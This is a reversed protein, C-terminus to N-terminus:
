ADSHTHERGHSHPLYLGNLALTRGQAPRIGEFCYSFLDIDQHFWRAVLSKTEETYLERYCIHRSRNKHPAHLNPLGIRGCVYSFDKHIREQRGVYDVLLEGNEGLVFEWCAKSRHLPSRIYEDFSSMARVKQATGWQDEFSTERWWHYTSVMVDWPNRIFSFKFYDNWTDDGVHKKVEAATSHKHIRGLAQWERNLVEGKATGGLVLDDEGLYPELAKTISTGACKTIHIFIFRHLHSIIM